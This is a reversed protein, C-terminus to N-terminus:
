RFWATIGAGGAATSWTATIDRTSGPTNGDSAAYMTASGVTTANNATANTWTVANSNTKYIMVPLLDGPNTTVNMIMSTLSTGPVRQAWGASVDSVPGYLTFLQFGMGNTTTQGVTFTITTTTGTPVFLSGVIRPASTIAGGTATGIRLNANGNGITCNSFLSDTTLRAYALVVVIRNPSPTGINVNTFTHTLASTTTGTAGVYVLSPTVSPKFSVSFLYGRGNGASPTASINGTAGANVALYSLKASPATANSDTIITTFGSPGTWTIGATNGNANHCFLLSNNETVTISPAVNPNANAGVTGMVDFMGNRICTTFASMLISGTATVVVSPPSSSEAIRWLVCRGINDLVETWGSGAPTTFNNSGSLIDSSLTIVLLDGAQVGSPMNVTLTTGATTRESLISSVVQPSTPAPAASSSAGKILQTLM